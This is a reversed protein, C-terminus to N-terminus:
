DHHVVIRLCLEIPGVVIASLIPLSFMSKTSLSLGDFVDVLLRGM